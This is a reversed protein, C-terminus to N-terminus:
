SYNIPRGVQRIPEGVGVVLGVVVGVIVGVVVGVVVSAPEDCKVALRATTLASILFSGGISFWLRTTTRRFLIVFASLQQQSSILSKKKKKKTKKHDDESARHSEIRRAIVRLSDRSLGSEILREILRGSASVFNGGSGSALLECISSM